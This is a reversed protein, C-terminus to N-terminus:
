RGHARANLAFWLSSVVISFGIATAVAWLASRRDPFTLRWHIDDPVGLLLRGLVAAVSSSDNLGEWLDSEIEVLRRDRVQTPLGFTYFWTWTRVAGIVLRLAPSSSTM